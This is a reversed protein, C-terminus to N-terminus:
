PLQLRASLAAAVLAACRRARCYGEQMYHVERAASPAAKEADNGIPYATGVWVYAQGCTDSVSLYQRM